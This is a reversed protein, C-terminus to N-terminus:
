PATIKVVFLGREIDSGLMLPQGPFKYVGWCGNYGPGTALSTGQHAIIKPHDLDTLDAVVLGESYHSLYARTGEIIVNHPTGDGQKISGRLTPPNSGNLSWIRCPLGSPVEETTAVFSGDESPWINHAFNGPTVSWRTILAPHAPDGVSWISYSSDSGEAVYCRGNKVTMDHISRNQNFTTLYTPNEADPKLDWVEISGNRASGLEDDSHLPQDVPAALNTYRQLFLLGRATDIDVTHASLAGDHPTISKVFRVSAPLGSLDLIMLGGRVNTHESVIYAHAGYVRMERWYIGPLKTNTPGDVEDVVRPSGPTRLDVVLIGKATGMLAYQGGDPATYGWCGAVGTRPVQGAVEAGFNTVTPPTGGGSVPATGSGGGACGLAGLCLLLAPFLTRIRM